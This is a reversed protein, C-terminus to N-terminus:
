VAAALSELWLSDIARLKEGDFQGSEEWYRGSEVWYGLESEARLANHIALNNFNMIQPYQTMEELTKLEIRPIL